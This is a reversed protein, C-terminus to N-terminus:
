LCTVLSKKNKLLADQNTESDFYRVNRLIYRYNRYKWQAMLFQIQVDSLNGALAACLDEESQFVANLTREPVLAEAIAQAELAGDEEEEPADSDSLSVGEPPEREL